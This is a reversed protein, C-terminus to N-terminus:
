RLPQLNQLPVILERNLVNWIFKVMPNTKHYAVPGMYLGHRLDNDITYGVTDGPELFSVNKIEDLSRRFSIEHMICTIRVTNSDKDYSEVMLDGRDEPFGTM